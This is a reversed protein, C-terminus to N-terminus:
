PKVPPPPPGPPDPDVLKKLEVEVHTRAWALLLSLVSLLAYLGGLLAIKAAKSM